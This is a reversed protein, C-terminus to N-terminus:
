GLTVLNKNVTINVGAEQSHLHVSAPPLTEMWAASGEMRVCTALASIQLASFLYQMTKTHIHNVCTKGLSICSVPQPDEHIWISILSHTRKSTDFSRYEKCWGERPSPLVCRDISENRGIRSEEWNNTNAPQYGTVCDRLTKGHGIKIAGKM